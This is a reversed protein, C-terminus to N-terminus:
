HHIFWFLLFCYFLEMSSYLGEKQLALRLKQLAKAKQNLVTQPSIAMEIAIDSTSKNDIFILKFVQKCQHPLLEVEAYILQLVKSAILETEYFQEHRKSLYEFELTSKNRRKMKRLHDICANRVAVFLFAKMEPLSGFDERTSSNLSLIWRLIKQKQM